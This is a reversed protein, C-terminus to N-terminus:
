EMNGRELKLSVATKLAALARRRLNYFNPMSVGMEVALQKPSRKDRYLGILLARYRPNHLDDLAEEMAQLRKSPEGAFLSDDEMFRDMKEPEINVIHRDTWQDFHYTNSM